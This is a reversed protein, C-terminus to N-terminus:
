VLLITPLTLHTYSVAAEVIMSIDCFCQAPNTIVPDNFFQEAMITKEDSFDNYEGLFRHWKRELEIYNGIFREYLVFLDDLTQVEIQAAYEEATKFRAVRGPAFPVTMSHTPISQRFMAPSTDYRKRFVFSYNSASYGYDLGVDTIVKEPNLKMDITSQDVKRRKIFAYVSEDTKEKFIRDFHYKSICFHAAIIDLSLKEDLHQM